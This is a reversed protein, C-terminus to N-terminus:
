QLMEIILEKVSEVEDEDFDFIETYGAINSGDFSNDNKDDMLDHIQQELNFCELLTGKGVAIEEWLVNEQALRDRLTKTTIGVKYRLKDNVVICVLYLICSKKALEPARELITNNYRGSGVIKSAGLEIAEQVSLGKSIRSSLLSGRIGVAESLEKISYYEKGEWEYVSINPHTDIGVIQRPTWGKMRRDRLTTVQLGYHEAADQLKEFKEGDVEFSQFKGERTVAEEPTYDYDVIRQRVVYDKMGYADALSKYSKYTVGGVVMELHPSGKGVRSVERQATLVGKKLINRSMSQEVTGGRKLRDRVTNEPIGSIEALEAVTYEKGQYEYRKVGKAKSRGDVVSELGLAQSISLGRERRKLYTCYHVGHENTMQKVSRYKTGNFEVPKAYRTIQKEKIAEVKEPKVYDKRETKIVLREGRHGREYRKFMTNFNVNYAEAIERVTIYTVGEIIQPDIKTTGTKKKPAILAEEISMGDNVREVFLPESVKSRHKIAKFLNSISPYKVGEFTYFPKGPMFGKPETLAKEISWGGELRQKFSPSSVPCVKKYANYLANLSKYTTNEFTFM